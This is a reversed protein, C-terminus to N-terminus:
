SKMFHELKTMEVQHIRLSFRFSFFIFNNSSFLCSFYFLHNWKFGEDDDKDVIFPTRIPQLAFGSSSGERERKRDLKLHWEAVCKWRATTPKSPINQRASDDREFYSHFHHTRTRANVHAGREFAFSCVLALPGLLKHTHTLRISNSNAVPLWGDFAFVLHISFHSFYHFSTNNKMEM